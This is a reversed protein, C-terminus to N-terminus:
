IEVSRYDYVVEYDDDVEGTEVKEHWKQGFFYLYKGDKTGEPGRASFFSEIEGGAEEFRRIGDLCNLIDDTLRERNKYRASRGLDGKRHRSALATWHRRGSISLMDSWIKIEVKGGPLDLFFRRTRVCYFHVASLIVVVALLGYIIIM